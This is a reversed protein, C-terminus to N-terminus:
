PGKSLSVVLPRPDPRDPTIPPCVNRGCYSNFFSSFSNIAAQADLGPIYNFLVTIASFKYAVPALNAKVTNVWDIWNGSSPPLGGVTAISTTEVKTNVVKTQNAYRKYEDSISVSASMLFQMQAAISLDIKLSKFLSMSEETYTHELFYRGGFTVKTAYHSGFHELFEEWSNREFSQRVGMIFDNSLQLENSYIPMEVSYVTCEANTQVSSMNKSVTNNVFSRYGFSFAFKMSMVLADFKADFSAM